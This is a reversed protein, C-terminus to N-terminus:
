AVLILPGIVLDPATAHNSNIYDYTHNFFCVWLKDGASGGAAPSMQILRGSYYFTIPNIQSSMQDFAEPAQLQPTTLDAFTAPTSASRGWAVCFDYLGPQDSFSVTLRYTSAASPGSVAPTAPIQAAASGALSM